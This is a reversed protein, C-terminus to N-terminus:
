KCRTLEPNSRVCRGGMRLRPDTAAPKSSNHTQIGGIYQLRDTTLTTQQETFTNTDPRDSAWLLEISHPPGSLSLSAQIIILGQGVLPQQAMSFDPHSSYM